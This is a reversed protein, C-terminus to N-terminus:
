FFPDRDPKALDSPNRTSGALRDTKEPSIAHGL